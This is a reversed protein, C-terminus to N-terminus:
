KGSAKRFESPTMKFRERFKENFYTRSAFGSMEAILNIPEDTESLLRAGEKDGRMQQAYALVTYTQARQQDIWGAPASAYEKEIHGIVQLKEKLLPIAGTYNEQQSLIRAANGLNTCLTPLPQISDRAAARYIDVLALAYAPEEIMYKRINEWAYTSDDGSGQPTDTKGTCGTVLALVSVVLALIIHSRARLTM